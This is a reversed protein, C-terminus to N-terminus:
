QKTAPLGSEAKKRARFRRVKMLNGCMKDDCYRKSRNRTDDYYVWLCSPNDCIRIRSPDGETLLRAFSAAIEAEVNEWQRGIPVLNFEFRGDQGSVQRIVAGESLIKNLAVIDELNPSERDVLAQVMRHLFTRLRKLSELAKSSPPHDVVLRQAHTWQDLWESNDLRDVATGDGRWDHHLSNLFDDWLM